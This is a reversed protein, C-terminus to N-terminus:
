RLAFLTHIFNWDYAEDYQVCSIIKRASIQVALQRQRLWGAKKRGGVWRIPASMNGFPLIEYIPPAPFLAHLWRNLSVSLVSQEISVTLILYLISFYARLSWMFSCHSLKSTLKQLTSFIIEQSTQIDEIAVFLVINNFKWSLLYLSSLWQDINWNRSPCEIRLWQKQTM